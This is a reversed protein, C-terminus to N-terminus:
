LSLTQVIEDLTNDINFSAREDECAQQQPDDYNACQVFRLSFTFIVTKNDKAVAYAYNTYTSGAAGESEKTVCYTHGNITQETTQGASATESGAETCSYADDSVEVKPPWDVTSIYQTGIDNPYQFSVHAKTDNFTKWDAHPNTTTDPCPAFSCDPGTRGVSSGDPCVKAELTCAQEEPTTKNFPKAWVVYVVGVLVIAALLVLLIQKTNSGPQTNMM